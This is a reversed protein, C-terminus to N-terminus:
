RDCPRIPDTLLALESSIFERRHAYLPAIGPTWAVSFRNRSYIVLAEPPCTELSRRTSEAWDPIVELPISFFFRREPRHGSALYIDPGGALVYLEGDVERIASVLADHEEDQGRAITLIVGASIMALSLCATAALLLRYPRHVLMRDIGTAALLALPPVLLAQYRGAEGGATYGQAKLALLGCASWLLIIPRRTWFAGAIAALWIPLASVFAELRLGFLQRLQSGLGGSESVRFRAFERNFSVTAAWFDGWVPFVALSVAGCVLTLALATRWSERKWIAVFLPLFILAVPKTMVAIGLLAGALLASPAAIAALLPLLMFTEISGGVAIHPNALFLAYSWVAFAIQRGQLWRRALSALVGVSASALLAGVIRQLEISGTLGAPLYWVYILPPKNDWLDRYPWRGETIGTAVITYVAEDYEYPVIFALASLWLFVFAAPALWLQHERWNFAAARRTLGPSATASTELVDGYREVVGRVPQARALGLRTPTAPITVALPATV